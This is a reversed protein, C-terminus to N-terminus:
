NIKYIEVSAELPDESNILRILNLYKIESEHNFNFVQIKNVRGENELDKISKIDPNGIHYYLLYNAGLSKAKSMGDSTLLNKTFVESNFTPSKRVVDRPNIIPKNITSLWYTSYVTKSYPYVVFIGNPINNKIYLFSPPVVSARSIKIPIYFDILM